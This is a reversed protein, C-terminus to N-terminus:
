IKPENHFFPRWKYARSFLFPFGLLSSTLSFVRTFNSKLIALSNIRFINLFLTSLFVLYQTIECQIKTLMLSEQDGSKIKVWYQLSIWRLPFPSLKYQIYFLWLVRPYQIQSIFNSIPCISIRQSLWLLEAM